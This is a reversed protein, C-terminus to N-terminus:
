ERSKILPNQVFVSSTDKGHIEETQAIASEVTDKPKFGLHALLNPKDAGAVFVRASHRLRKLPYTALISRGPLPAHQLSDEGYPGLCGCVSSLPYEIPVMSMKKPMSLASPLVRRSSTVLLHPPM